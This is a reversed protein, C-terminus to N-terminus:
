VFLGPSSQERRSDADRNSTLLSRYLDLYREAMRSKDFRRIAASRCYEGDIDGCAKIATAMEEVGGVLYGTKGHEVIEPLAGSRFAIAPTGSAAAEMAVLSSTEAALSPILLVKASALLDAKQEMGVAGVYRRKSDLLPVVEKAFYEQHSSFLHVPGALLMDEGAMHAAKLAHHVGKEPCIRGMFLLHDGNEKPRRYRGIDVGNPIVTGSLASRQSESVFVNTAGLLNFSTQSYWSTPLHLTVVNIGDHGAASYYTDVDLGHYHVVDFSQERLLRAITSRHVAQAYERNSADAGEQVGPTAILRGSVHTGEAAVVVSDHGAGVIESELLHLIQEAGGASDASVPFLPYAVSLVRM